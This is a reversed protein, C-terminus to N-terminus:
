PCRANGNEELICIGPRRVQQSAEGEQIGLKRFGEEYRKDNTTTRL